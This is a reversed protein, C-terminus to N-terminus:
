RFRSCILRSSRVGIRIRSRTRARLSSRCCVPIRAHERIRNPRLEPLSSSSSEGPRRTASINFQSCLRRPLARSSLLAPPVLLAIRRLFALPTLVLFPRGNRPKKLKYAIRGDATESLREPAFPHRAVYRCLRERGAFDGAPIFVSADISLGATDALSSTASARRKELPQPVVVHGDQDIDAFFGSPTTTTQSSQGELPDEKDGIIGRRKLLTRVRRLVLLTLSRLDDSTPHHSPEFVLSDGNKTPRYVGDLVLVHFHVHQNLSSGFRQVFSIAGTKPSPVTAKAKHWKSVVDVFIRLVSSLLRPDRAMLFGLDFPVAPVWQRISVDPLVHEVLHAGTNAMRRAGCSPCIGRGKCSFAVLLDTGCTKCRARAFGHALIGCRVYKRFELEVYRRVGPGDAANAEALMTELHERVVRHLLTQEPKHREYAQAVM